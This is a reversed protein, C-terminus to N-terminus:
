SACCGAGKRAEATVIEPWLIECHTADGPRWGVSGPELRRGQMATEFAPLVDCNPWNGSALSSRYEAPLGAESMATQAAGYDYDLSRHEIIVDGSDVRLLSFWVRPTGDNAPMGAVGANHWLRGDVIETFPLGCHGGVVGDCDTLALEARKAEVATTAFVFQNIRSISGHIVLLRAIGLDITIRPPLGGLWDRRARDTAASAHAFWAASLRDCQTGDGFGCGCDEANNALQEDCNGAIVNIGSARVLDITEVPSGCYAALDGTCVVHDAPVGLRKAEDLVAATAQLNSYPGGFILVPGMATLVDASRTM